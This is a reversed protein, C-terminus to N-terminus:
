DVKKLVFTVRLNVGGLKNFGLFEQKQVGAIRKFKGTGGTVMRVIPATQEIGSTDISAGDDPLLYLQSTYVWPEKTAPIENGAVLHTGRCFWRGAAKPSKPDTPDFAAGDGKITGAPYIKGETIFFSGRQPITNEIPPAPVFKTFDESVDVTFEIQGGHFDHKAHDAAMALPAALGVVLSAAFRVFRNKLTTSLNM